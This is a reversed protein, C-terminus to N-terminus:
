AIQSLLPETMYDALWEDFTFARGQLHYVLDPFWWTLEFFRAVQPNIPAEEGVFPHRQLLWASLTRLMSEVTGPRFPAFLPHAFLQALIYLVLAPSPHHHTFFLRKQRFHTLIYSAIRVDCNRESEIMQEAQIEHFRGLDVISNIDIAHYAAVRKEPDLPSELIKLALRDNFPVPRRGWPYEASPANRPDVCVFPWLSNFGVLPVRLTTCDGPLATRETDSFLAASGLPYDQEILLTCRGLVSKQVPLRGSAGETSAHLEYQETLGPFIALAELLHGTVCSGVSVITRKSM